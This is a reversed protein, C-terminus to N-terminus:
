GEIKQSKGSCSGFCTSSNNSNQKNEPNEILKNIKTANKRKNKDEIGCGSLRM